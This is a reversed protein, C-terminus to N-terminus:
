PIRHRWIRGTLTNDNGNITLSIEDKQLITVIESTNKVLDITVDGTMSANAADVAAQLTPYSRAGIKAVGDWQAYLITTDPNVLEINSSVPTYPTGTGDAATNWLDTKFLQM